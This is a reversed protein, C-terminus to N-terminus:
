LLGHEYASAIAAARSSVRLKAFINSVHRDVTRESLVLAAAIAKNTKGAAVLRLVELERETLGHAERPASPALSGIRTLHPQAGLEAYAARAADLELAATGEDGLAGGALGVLEHVRAAEYPAELQHWVDEAHRLSALAAGPDGDALEVAGQAQAAMAGVAGEEHGAALSELESSADRAAAREGVALMIEVFAPLLRARRGAQTTETLARRIAREAAEHRGQALRLLALGPQPERGRRGADHYAAEAAVFDGLMRHLEGRRYCAEGAAASNRRDCRQKVSPGHIFPRLRRGAAEASRDAVLQTLITEVVGRDCPQEVERADGCVLAAYLRVCRQDAVQEALRV